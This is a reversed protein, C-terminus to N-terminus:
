FKMLKPAFRLLRDLANPTFKRAFLHCINTTNGNYRCTNGNRLRKLFDITVDLRTFKRPHPGGLSWDVWTITRNSNKKWFKISVFTPLYHEDSYCSGTCFSQFEVFYTRDSVVEIALDRDMEFWQSGKRWQRLHIVPRMLPSYRGRGVPSNLDYVEVFSQASGTLYSYVTSFNFLPICSESLLVFRKNSFDLLANALLRREAEIMSNEGWQVEQSPIRRGHFVSNKPVTGNFRPSTHWYVSYLGDHGKFFLEWLPAFPLSGRSLFLFAVKPVVKFPFEHIRPVLSARWLLEKEAMDHSANPLRLFESLGTRAPTKTSINSLPPPPPPSLSLLFQQSILPATQTSFKQNIQFNFSIDRLFFSLTFGFALGSGFILFYFIVNHIQMLSNALKLSAQSRLQHKSDMEKM